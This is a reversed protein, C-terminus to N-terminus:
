LRKFLDLDSVQLCNGETGTTKAKIDRPINGYVTQNELVLTRQEPSSAKVRVGKPNQRPLMSFAVVHM